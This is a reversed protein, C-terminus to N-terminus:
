AASLEAADWSSPRYSWRFPRGRENHWLIYRIVKEALDEKSVFSGRAIVRRQLISFFQEIQNLWSGHKPTFHLSWRPHEELWDLVDDTDHSSLNDCVLNGKGTPYCAEVADLLAVFPESGTHEDIFGFARGARVDFAGMLVVTGHRIYEFERKVPSGPKMPVDAYRRELAQMGPKEDLCILHESPPSDYYLRLIADRKARFEDDQSHLWMKQRHPQLRARRLIRRVSSESICVGVSPLHEALLSASWQTVPIGIDQPPRCAESVVRACDADSLSCAASGYSPRGCADRGTTGSPVTTAM